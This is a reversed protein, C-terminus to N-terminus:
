RLLQDSLLVLGTIPALLGLATGLLYSRFRVNSLALAYNLPPAMWLLQRLLFITRVPHGDLQSFIRRALSSRMAALPTGGITRVVIFSVSGAGVAGLFALMGGGVRGYAVVAAALFVVGPVHVLEGVCFILVFAIPGWLGADATLARIRETSLSANLGTVRGVVFFGVGLTALLALRWWRVLPPDVDTM